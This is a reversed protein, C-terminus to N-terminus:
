PPNWYLSDLPSLVANCFEALLFASSFKLGLILGKLLLHGGQLGLKRVGLKCEAIHIFLDDCDGSGPLHLFHRPYIGVENALAQLGDVINRFM